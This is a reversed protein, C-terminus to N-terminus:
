LESPKHAAGRGWRVVRGRVNNGRVVSVTLRRRRAAACRVRRSPTYVSSYVGGDVRRYRRRFFLHDATGASHGASDKASVRLRQEWLWTRLAYSVGSRRALGMLCRMNGGHRPRTQRVAVDSGSTWTSSPPSTAYGGRARSARGTLRPTRSGGAVRSWAAVRLQRCPQPVARRQTRRRAVRQAATRQAVGVPFSGRVSRWGPPSFSAPPRTGLRPTASPRRVQM